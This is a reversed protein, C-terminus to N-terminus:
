VLDADDQSIYFSLTLRLGTTQWAREIVGGLQQASIDILRSGFGAEALSTKSATARDEQWKITLRERGTDTKQTAWSLLVMGGNGDWAGHKVANTALEHFILSLPNIADDSIETPAGDFWLGNAGVCYPELLATLIDSLDHPELAVNDLGVFYSAALASIRASIKEGLRTADSEYRTSMTVLGKVVAFLNRLRHNLEQVVLQKSEQAKALAIDNRDIQLLLMNGSPIDIPQIRTSTVVRQGGIGRREVTGSWPIGANLGAKISNWDDPLKANTILQPNQSRAAEETIGYLSEAANNWHLVGGEATWVIIADQSLDTQPAVDPALTDPM